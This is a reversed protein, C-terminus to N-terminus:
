NVVRRINGNFANKWYENNLDDIWVGNTEADHMFKNEGLYIGIHNNTVGETNFFILDGKKMEEKKVPTGMNVLNFTVVNRYDGLNLGASAYCYHVFSSCDFRNALIDAETRGGGFVYPSKGILTMGKAIAKDIIENSTGPSIDYLYLSYTEITKKLKEAYKSDTAYGAKQLAEAQEIYNKAEFVGASQYRINKNLFKIRDEISEEFSEYVRWKTVITIIGGAVEEQTPLEVIKGIWNADAKIGFLNNYEASLISKGWSSEHIAQAITISPYIGKEYGKIAGSLLKSVFINQEQNLSTNEVSKGQNSGISAILIIFIFSFILSSLIGSIVIIKKM